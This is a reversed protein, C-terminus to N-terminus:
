LPLLEDLVTEHVAVGFQGVLHDVTGGVEREREGGQEVLALLLELRLLHEPHDLSHLGPSFVDLVRESLAVNLFYNFM